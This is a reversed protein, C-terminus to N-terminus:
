WCHKPSLNVNCLCRLSGLTLLILKIYGSIPVGQVSPMLWHLDESSSSVM